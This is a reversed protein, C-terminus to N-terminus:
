RINCRYQYRSFIYSNISIRCSYKRTVNCKSGM